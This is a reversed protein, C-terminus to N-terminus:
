YKKKLGITVISEGNNEISRGSIHYVNIQGSGYAQKIVLSSGKPVYKGGDNVVFRASGLSTVIQSNANTWTDSDMPDAPDDESHLWNYSAPNPKIKFSEIKSAGVYASSEAKYFNIKSTKDNGSIMLELTSTNTAFMGIMTLLLLVFIAIVLLSGKENKVLKM